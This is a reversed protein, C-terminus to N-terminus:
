WRTKRTKENVKLNEEIYFYNLLFNKLKDDKQRLIEM